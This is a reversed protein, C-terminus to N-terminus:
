SSSKREKKISINGSPLARVIEDIDDVGLIKKVLKAADSPKEKGVGLEVVNECHKQVAPLPGCMVAGAKTVGIGISIKPHIYNTKGRIVFAGKGLYEGARAEKTVQDPRVWFANISMLGLKWARSFCFTADAVEQLSADGAAKGETKIVFFPSGSMDTHFVVDDKQTYKKIILENTTSDRGGVVLFGESTRFWRFKEYWEKKRKVAQKPKDKIEELRATEEQEMERRMRRFKELAARAGELKRRAQKAKEFYVEANQEVSKNLFLVIKVM